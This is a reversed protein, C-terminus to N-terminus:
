QTRGSKILFALVQESNDDSANVAKQLELFQPSPRIGDGSGFYWRDDFARVMYGLSEMGEVYAEANFDSM